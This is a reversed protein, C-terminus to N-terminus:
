PSLLWNIAIDLFRLTTEKRNTISSKSEVVVNDAKAAEGASVMVASLLVAYAGPSSTVNETTRLLLGPCAINRTSHVIVSATSLATSLIVYLANVKPVM